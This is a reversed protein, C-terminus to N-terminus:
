SKKVRPALGQRPKSPEFHPNFHLSFGSSQKCLLVQARASSATLLWGGPMHGELAWIFVAAMHRDAEGIVRTGGCGAGRPGGARCHTFYWQRHDALLHFLLDVGDSVARRCVRHLWTSVTLQRTGQKWHLIPTGAQKSPVQPWVMDTVHPCTARHGHFWDTVVPSGTVWQWNASARQHLQPTTVALTKTLVQVVAWLSWWVPVIEDRSITSFFAM